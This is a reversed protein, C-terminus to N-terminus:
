VLSKAIGDDEGKSLLISYPYEFQSFRPYAKTCSLIIVIKSSLFFIFFDSKLAKKAHFIGNVIQICIWATSNLFCSIIQFLPEKWPSFFISPSPSRSILCIEDSPLLFHIEPNALSLSLAKYRSFTISDWKGYRSSITKTSLLEWSLVQSIQWDRWFFIDQFFWFKETGEQLRYIIFLHIDSKHRFSLGRYTKNSCNSVRAFLSDIHLSFRHHDDAKVWLIQM